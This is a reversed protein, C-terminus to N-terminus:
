LQKSWTSYFFICIIFHSFNSCNQDGSLVVSLLVKSSCTKRNRRAQFIRDPLPNCNCTHSRRRTCSCRRICICTYTRRRTCSCQRICICTCICRRTCSCQRICICTYIRRRTCSCQCICTCNRRRTCTCLRICNYRAIIFGSSHVIQAM